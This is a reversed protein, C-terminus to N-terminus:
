QLSVTFAVYASRCPGLQDLVFRLYCATTQGVAPAGAAWTASNASNSNYWVGGSNGNWSTPSPNSMAVMDPLRDTVTANFASSMCSCNVVWITYTLLGGASQATPNTLKQGAICPNNVVVTATLAFSVSFGLGNSSMCTITAANTVLTGDATMASARGPWGALLLIGAVAMARM